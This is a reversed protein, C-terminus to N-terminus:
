LGFDPLPGKEKEKKGREFGKTGASAPAHFARSNLSATCTGVSAKEERSDGVRRHTLM